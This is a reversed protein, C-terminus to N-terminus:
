SLQGTVKEVAGLVKGERVLRAARELDPAMIRDRDLRKIQQRVARYAAMTGKGPQLPSRLDIGQAACLLEIALVQEANELIRAAQRAATMGMSVHDEQNASTPISDISAPHALGKSESVLSAATVQAMM